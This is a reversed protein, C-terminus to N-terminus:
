GQKAAQIEIEVKVEDGVLFGGAELAANWTLGYESRKITGTAQFAAKVNGWPDKGEGSFEVAFTESRTVGHLTLDGTVAYEGDATGAISKAAFTLKPHHEVDFFDATRLHNDRDANNTDVSALDVTVAIGATTLDNPDAEISADFSKFSGRVKSFMMHRITFSVSSHTPDLAWKSIAM